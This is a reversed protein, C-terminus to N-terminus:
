KMGNQVGTGRLMSARSSQIRTRSGEDIMAVRVKHTTSLLKSSDMIM